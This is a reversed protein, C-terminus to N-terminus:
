SFGMEREWNDILPRGWEVLQDLQQALKGSPPLVTKFAQSADVAAKFALDAYLRGIRHCQKEIFFGGVTPTASQFDDAISISPSVATRNPHMFKNFLKRIRRRRKGWDEGFDPDEAEIAIQLAKSADGDTLKDKWFKRAINPHLMVAVETVTAQDISRISHFAVSYFGHILSKWGCLLMDFTYCALAVAARLGDETIPTNRTVSEIAAFQFAMAKDFLEREEKLLALSKQVVDDADKM